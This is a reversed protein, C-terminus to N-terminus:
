TSSSAMYESTRGEVIRDFPTSFEAAALDGFFRTVIKIPQLEEPVVFSGSKIQPGYRGLVVIFSCM